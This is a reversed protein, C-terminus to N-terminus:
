RRVGSLPFGVLVSWQSHSAWQHVGTLPSLGRACVLSLLFAWPACWHSASTWQRVCTLPFPLWLVGTLPLPCLHVGTLPPLGASVCTLPYLNGAGVLSLPFALLVCWNSSYPVPACWHSPCAWLRMGTLPTLGTTCVLSLPLGGACVLSLPLGGSLCFIVSACWHFLLLWLCMGTLPHLVSPVGTFPSLGCAHVLSIPFGM